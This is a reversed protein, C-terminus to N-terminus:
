RRMFLSGQLLKVGELRANEVDYLQTIELCALLEEGESELVDGGIGAVHLLPVEGVEGQRIEANGLACPSLLM